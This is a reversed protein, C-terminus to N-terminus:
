CWVSRRIDVALWHNTFPRDAPLGGAIEDRITKEPDSPWLPLRKTKQYALAAIWFERFEGEASLKSPSIKM